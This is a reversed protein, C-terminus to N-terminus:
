LVLVAGGAAFDLCMVCLNMGNEQESVQGQVWRCHVSLAGRGGANQNQGRPLTSYIFVHVSTDPGNPGPIQM